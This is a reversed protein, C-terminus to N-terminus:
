ICDILLIPQANEIKGVLIDLIVFVKIDCFYKELERSHEVYIDNVHKWVITESPITFKIHEFLKMHNDNLKELLIFASLFVTVVFKAFTKSNDVLFSQRM